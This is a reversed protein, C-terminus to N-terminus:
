ARRTWAKRGLRRVGGFDVLVPGTPRANDWTVFLPCLWHLARLWRSLACGRDHVRNTLEFEALLASKPTLVLEHTQCRNHSAGEGSDGASVATRRLSPKAAM